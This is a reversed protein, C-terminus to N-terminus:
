KKSLNNTTALNSSTKKSVSIFVSTTSTGLAKSGFLLKKKQEEIQIDISNLM